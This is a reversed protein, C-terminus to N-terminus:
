FKPSFELGLQKILKKALLDLKPKNEFLFDSFNEEVQKLAHREDPDITKHDIHYEIFQCLICPALLLKELKYEDVLQIKHYTELIRSDFFNTENHVIATLYSRGKAVEDGSDDSALGWMEYDVGWVKIPTNKENLQILYNSKGRDPDNLWADFPILNYCNDIERIQDFYNEIKQGRDALFEEFTIAKPVVKILVGLITDIKESNSLKRLHDNLKESCQIDYTERLSYNYFEEITEVEHDEELIIVDKGLTIKKEKELKFNSIVDSTIIIAEPVALGLTKAIRSAICEGLVRWLHMRDKQNSPSDIVDVDLTQIEKTEFDITNNFIKLMWKNGYQDLLLPKEGHQGLKIVENDIFRCILNKKSDSYTIKLDWSM